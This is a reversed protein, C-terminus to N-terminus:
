YLRDRCDKALKEVDAQTYEDAGNFFLFASEAIGGIYVKDLDEQGFEKRFKELYFKTKEEVKSKDSNYVLIKVNKHKTNSEHFEEFLLRCINLNSFIRKAIDPSTASAEGFLFILFPILLLHKKMYRLIILNLSFHGKITTRMQM